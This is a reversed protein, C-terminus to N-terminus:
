IRTGVFHGVREPTIAWGRDSAASRGVRPDTCGRVIVEKKLTQRYDPVEVPLHRSDRSTTM